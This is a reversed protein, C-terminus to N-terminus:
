NRTTKTAKKTKGNRGKQKTKKKGSPITSIKKGQIRELFIGSKRCKHAYRELTKLSDDPYFKVQLTPVPKREGEGVIQNWKKAFDRLFTEDLRRNSTKRIRDDIARLESELVSEPERLLDFEVKGERTTRVKVSQIVDQLAFSILQARRALVFDLHRAHIGMLSEYEFPKTTIWFLPPNERAGVIELRIIEASDDETV